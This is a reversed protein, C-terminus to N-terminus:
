YDPPIPVVTEDKTAHIFEVFWEIYAEVSSGLCRVWEIFMM